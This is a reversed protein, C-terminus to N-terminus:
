VGVEVAVSITDVWIMVFLTRVCTVGTRVVVVRVVVVIAAPACFLSASIVAAGSTIGREGSAAAKMWRRIARCFLADAGEPFELTAEANDLAQEQRSIVGEFVVTVDVSGAVVTVSSANSRITVATVLM